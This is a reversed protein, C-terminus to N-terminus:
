GLAHKLLAQNLDPLALRGQRATRMRSFYPQRPGRSEMRVCNLSVRGNKVEVVIFHHM